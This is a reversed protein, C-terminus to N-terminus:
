KYATLETGPRCKASEATTSPTTPAPPPITAPTAVRQGFHRQHYLSFNAATCEAPQVVPILASEAILEPQPLLENPQLPPLQTQRGSTSTLRPIRGRFSTLTTVHCAYHRPYPSLTLSLSVSAHNNSPQTKKGAVIIAAARPAFKLRRDPVM